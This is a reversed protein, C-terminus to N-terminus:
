RRAGSSSTPKTGDTSSRRHARRLSHSDHLPSPEEQHVPAVHRSKRVESVGGPYLLMAQKTKMLNYYNAPSVKVTGYEIFDNNFNNSATSNGGGFIVPHGLGRVLYNRKELIESVVLKM